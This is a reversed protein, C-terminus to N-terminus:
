SCIAGFELAEIVRPIMISRPGYHYLWVAAVTSFRDPLLELRCRRDLDVLLM